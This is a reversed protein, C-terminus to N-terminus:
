LTAASICKLHICLGNVCISFFLFFSVHVVYHKASLHETSPVSKLM